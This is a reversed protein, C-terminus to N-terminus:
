QFTIMKNIFGIEEITAPRIKNKYVYVMELKNPKRINYIIFGCYTIGGGTNSCNNYSKIDIFFEDVCKECHNYEINYYIM